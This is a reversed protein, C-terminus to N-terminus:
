SMRYKLYSQSKGAGGELGSKYEQIDFDMEKSLVRLTATKASGAPGTLVLIRQHSMLSLRRAISAYRVRYKALKPNELAESLWNQVDAAKKKHIGLEDQSHMM